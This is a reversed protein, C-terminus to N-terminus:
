WTPLRFPVASTGRLAIVRTDPQAEPHAAPPRDMRDAPWGAGLKTLVDTFYRCRHTDYQPDARRAADHSGAFLCNKRGLAIDRLQQECVNNDLSVRGDEVIRTLAPWHNL